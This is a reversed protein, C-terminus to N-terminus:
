LMDAEIPARKKTSGKPAALQVDGQVKKLGAVIIGIEADPLITVVEPDKAMFLHIDRLATHFNPLNNDQALKLEEIMAFIPHDPHSKELDQKAEAVEIQPQEKQEVIASSSSSIQEEKREGEVGVQVSAPQSDLIIKEHPKSLESVYAEKIDSVQSQAEKNESKSENKKKAELLLRLKTKADM